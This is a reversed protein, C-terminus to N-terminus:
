YMVYPMINIAAGGDVLIKSVPQCDVRGRVFLTKLQQREHDTLKEFVAMIPGLPLQAMQNSLNIEEDDSSPALFEMLLM